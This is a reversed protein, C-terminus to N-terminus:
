DVKITQGPKRGRRGKPKTNSDLRVEPLDKTSKIANKMGIM